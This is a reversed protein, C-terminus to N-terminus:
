RPEALTLGVLADDDGNFNACSRCPKTPRYHRGQIVRRGDNAVGYVASTCNIITSDLMNYVLGNSSEESRRHIGAVNTDTRISILSLILCTPCLVICLELAPWDICTPLDSRGRM